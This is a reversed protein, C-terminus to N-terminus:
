FSQLLDGRADRRLKAVIALDDDVVYAAAMRLMGNDMNFVAMHGATLHTVARRLHHQILEVALIVVRLIVQAVQGPRRVALDQLRGGEIDAVAAAVDGADEGDVVVNGVDHHHM